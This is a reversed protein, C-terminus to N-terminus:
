CNSVILTLSDDPAQEDRGPLSLAPDLCAAVMSPATITTM